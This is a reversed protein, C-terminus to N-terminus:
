PRRRRMAVRVTAGLVLSLPWVVALVVLCAFAGAALYVRHKRAVEVTVLQQAVPRAMWLVYLSAGAGYALAWLIM